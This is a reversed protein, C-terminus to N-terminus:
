VAPIGLSKRLDASLSKLVDAPRTQFEMLVEPRLRGAHVGKELALYAEEFDIAGANSTAEKELSPLGFYGAMPISKPMKELSKLITSTAEALLGMGKVVRDLTVTHEGQAKSLAQVMADVGGFSKTMATELANLAESGDRIEQYETDGALSKTITEAASVHTVTADGKKEEKTEEVV